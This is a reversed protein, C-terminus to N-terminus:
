SSTSSRGLSTRRRTSAPDGSTSCCPDPSAYNSQVWSGFVATEWPLPSFRTPDDYHIRYAVAGGYTKNSFYTLHTSQDLYDFELTLVSNDTIGKAGLLFLM